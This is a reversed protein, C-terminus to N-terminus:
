LYQPCRSPTRFLTAALQNSREGTAGLVTYSNDLLRDADCVVVFDPHRERLVAQAQTDDQAVFFRATAVIGALSEHSTGAVGSKGSWYVLQPTLWWPGLIGDGELSKIADAAERLQQGERLNEFVQRATEGQPFLEGELSSAVPWLSVVFLTYGLWRQRVIALVSPMALAGALALFYGWRAHWWTLAGMSVLFPLWLWALVERRKWALWALAFPALLSLWGIWAVAAFVPNFSQLEGIRVTWNFFARASGGLTATPLGQLAIGLAAVAAALGLSSFWSRALCRGRWVLARIVLLLVLLVLPEFWSVWLAGGWSLGWWVATRLGRDTWLVAEALIGSGTLLLVLSQHDPRGVAFGHLLVPSMSLLALTSWRYARKQREGWLWAVLILLCGLVPSIWAGVVDLEVNPGLVEKAAVILYDMPATTHPHVGFPYNEFLHTRILTGPEEAVIRARTMRSYCDGDVFHVGDPLFVFRSKQYQLLGFVSLFILLGVWPAIKRTVGLIKHRKSKPEM